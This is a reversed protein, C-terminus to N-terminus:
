VLRWHETWKSLLEHDYNNDHNKKKKNNNNDTNNKDNNNKDNNKNNNKHVGVNTRSFALYM